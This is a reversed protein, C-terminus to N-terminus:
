VKWRTKEGIQLEIVTLPIFGKFMNYEVGNMYCKLSNNAASCVYM